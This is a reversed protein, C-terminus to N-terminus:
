RNAGPNVILKGPNEQSRKSKTDAKLRFGLSLWEKTFKPQYTRCGSLKNM